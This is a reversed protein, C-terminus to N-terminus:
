DPVRESARYDVVYVQRRRFLRKPRTEFSPTPLSVDADGPFRRRAVFRFSIDFLKLREGVSNDVGITASLFAYVNPGDGQEAKIGSRDILQDVNENAPLEATLPLSVDYSVDRRFIIEENSYASGVGTVLNVGLWLRFRVEM